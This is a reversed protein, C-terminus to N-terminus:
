RNLTITQGNMEYVLQHADARIIKYREESGIATGPHTGSANTVTFILFGDSVQWTGDFINTGSKSSFSESFSGDPTMAIAHAGHSWTGRIERALKTDRKACATLISSLALIFVISQKMIRM